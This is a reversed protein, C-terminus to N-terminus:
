EAALKQIAKYFHDSGYHPNDPAVRFKEHEMSGPTFHRPSMSVFYPSVFVAGGQQLDRLVHEPAAPDKWAQTHFEPVAFREGEQLYHRRVLATSASGGYLNIGKKYRKKGQISADSAFLVPNWGGVTAVAIQHTFLRDGPLGAAISWDMWQNYANIVEQQRFTLWDRALPNYFVSQLQAPQDLYYRLDKPAAAADTNRRFDEIPEQSQGMVVIDRRALEYRQAGDELIIQVAYKGRPLQSFDLVYRFGIGARKAEPLAEYVDQRNLGYEADGLYKGNVYVKIGAQAQLNNLWGEIPLQGHAYSDFHETIHQVSEKRLDKSPPQVMHFFEVWTGMAQNFAEVSQYKRKLWDQFAAVRSPSYDTVRIDDFRGMGQSFNDYFHHLEGALTFGLIKKKHHPPLAKYWAGVKNLMARRQQNIPLLPHAQLTLPEISSGFYKEDPAKGNAFQALANQPIAPSASTAAFHNAFLYIVLPRDIDKLARSFFGSPKFANAQADVLLNVGVTYGVQVQGKAGGPELADLAAKLEKTGSFGKRVCYEIAKGLDGQEHGAECYGQGEIVPAIVLVPPQSQAQIPTSFAVLGSLFVGRYFHELLAKRIPLM